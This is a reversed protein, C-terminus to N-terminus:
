FRVGAGLRFTNITAAIDSVPAFQVIEYEGRVFINPAIAVDVGLGAALGYMLVNKRAESDGFTFPVGNETADITVSRSIDSRGLALGIMAYPHFRGLAYGGRARITGFDIVKMTAAGNLTVVYSNGGAALARTIPTNTAVGSLPGRNYNVELGLTVDEFQYNFGIFGGYLSDNASGNGLVQWQSIEGEAELATERLAYAVLSRTARSFDFSAYSQGFQGGAYFGSWPHNDPTAPEYLNSGRLRPQDWVQASAPAAVGILACCLIVVRM